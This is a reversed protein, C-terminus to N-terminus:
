VEEMRPGTMQFREPHDRREKQDWSRITAALDKYIRGKSKAYDIVNQVRREVEEASGFQKVLDNWEKETLSLGLEYSKFKEKYIEKQKQIIAKTNGMKPLLKQANKTIVKKKPPLIWQDYHKNFEYRNPTNKNGLKTVIIVKKSLLKKISGSIHTIGMKSLLQFQSLSIEDSKRHWGYTKRLIVCLIQWEEGSFRIGALAELLENAIETRGNELQPNTMIIKEAL